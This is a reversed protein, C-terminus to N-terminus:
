GPVLMPVALAGLDVPKELFFGLFMFRKEPPNLTKPDQHERSRICDRIGNDPDHITV